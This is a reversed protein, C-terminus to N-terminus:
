ASRECRGSCEGVVVATVQLERMRIITALALGAYVSGGCSDFYLVGRSKSPLEILKTILESQRDSLDGTLALEWPQRGDGAPNGFPIPPYAGLKRPAKDNSM